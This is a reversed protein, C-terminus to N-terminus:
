LEKGNLSVRMGVVGEEFSRGSSPLRWFGAGGGYVPEVLLDSLKGGPLVVDREVSVGDDPLALVVKHKGSGVRLHTNFRYRMGSGAEPGVATLAYGSEPLPSGSLLVAQGDINLLLKYDATGHSDSAFHSGPGHTKLTASVRVDAANAPLEGKAPVQFVDTRRSASHERILAFREACGGLALLATILLVLRKKMEGEKM